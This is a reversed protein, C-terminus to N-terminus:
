KVPSNKIRSPAPNKLQQTSINLVLLMVDHNSNLIFM